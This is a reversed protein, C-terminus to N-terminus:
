IKNVFDEFDAKSASTLAGYYKADFTQKPIIILNGKLYRIVSKTQRPLEEGNYIGSDGHYISIIEENPLRLFEEVSSSFDTSLPTVNKLEIRVVNLNLKKIKYIQLENVAIQHFVSNYLEIENNELLKASSFNFDGGEFLTWFNDVNTGIFDLIDVIEKKSEVKNWINLSELAENLNMIEGM